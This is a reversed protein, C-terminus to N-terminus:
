YNFKNWVLLHYSSLVFLKGLTWYDQFFSVPTFPVALLCMIIDSLAQNMIFLNTVSQMTKNRCVVYVVLSNGSIGILFILSYLIILIIMALKSHEMHNAYLILTTNTQNLQSINNIAM